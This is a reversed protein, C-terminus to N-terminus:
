RCFAAIVFINFFTVTSYFSCNILVPESSPRVMPPMSSLLIDQNAAIEEIRPKLTPTDIM